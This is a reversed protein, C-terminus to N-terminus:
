DLTYFEKLNHLRLFDLMFIPNTLLQSTVKADGYDQIFSNWHHYQPNTKMLEKALSNEFVILFKEKVNKITQKAWILFFEKKNIVSM